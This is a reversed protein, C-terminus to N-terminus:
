ARRHLACVGLADTDNAILAARRKAEALLAPHEHKM